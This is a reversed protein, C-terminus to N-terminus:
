PLSVGAGGNYLFTVDTSGLARNWAGLEDLSGDFYLLWASSTGIQGGQAGSLPSDVGGCNCNITFTTTSIPGAGDIYLDFQSADVATNAPASWTAVVHHWAGDNYASSSEIGLGWGDRDLLWQLHGSAGNQSMELTLSNGSTVTEGRNAFLVQQSSSTTNFWMAISYATVANEVLDAAQVYGSAGDLVIAHGLKGTGWTVGGQLTGTNNGGTSDSTTTGTGEDFKWYVILNEDVASADLKSADTADTADATADLAGDNESTVDASADSADVTADPKADVAADSKADADGVSADNAGGDDPAEVGACAVVARALVVFGLTQVTRSVGRM